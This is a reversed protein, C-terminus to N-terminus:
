FRRGISAQRQEAGGSGTRNAPAHPATPRLLRLTGRQVRPPTRRSRLLRNATARRRDPGRDSGPSADSAVAHRTAATKAGQGLSRQHRDWRSASIGSDQAATRLRSLRAVAGDRGLKRGPFVSVSARRSVHAGPEGGCVLGAGERVEGARAAALRRRVRSGSRLSGRADGFRAEDVEIRWPAARPGKV